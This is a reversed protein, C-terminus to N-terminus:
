SLSIYFKVNLRRDGPDNAMSFYKSRVTLELNIEEEADRTGPKRTGCLILIFLSGAHEWSVVNDRFNLSEVFSRPFFRALPYVRPSQAVGLRKRENENRAAVGRVGCLPALEYRVRVSRPSNRM